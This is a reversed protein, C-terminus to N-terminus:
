NLWGLPLKVLGGSTEICLLAEKLVLSKSCKACKEQNDSCISKHFKQDLNKGITSIANSISKESLQVTEKYPQYLDEGSICTIFRNERILHNKLSIRNNLSAKFKSSTLNITKEEIIRIKTM